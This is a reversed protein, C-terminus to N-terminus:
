PYLVLAAHRLLWNREESTVDPIVYVHEQGAGRRAEATRSSGFPVAAGALVLALRVGRRRLEGVVQIAIDRNKHAYNTGLVLAFDGAVFGRALLESPPSTAEEGSLHDTGNEVVFIREPDVPMRELGLHDRVDHSIAIVGDCAGAVQRMADRHYIWEESTAHYIGVHFSTLDQITVVTRAATKFWSPHLSGTPQFPRHGVDVWGFGTVDGGAVYRAEVKPHSLIEAAYAPVSTALAVYVREVDPRRSLAAVLCSTQVQTGMEKPGLCSGDILVRLGLVKARAAAHVIALPSDGANSEQRAIDASFPHRDLLWRDEAPTFGADELTGLDYPRAVFTAPDVVDLFGKQRARLSVDALALGGRLGGVEALPGVASLAYSSLLVVPGASFPIPAPAQEPETERLLRTISEEDLSEVQHSVAQNRYPFSVFSAANCLFSVTAVSMDGSVAALAPALFASPVVVPETVVLVHCRGEEWLENVATSLSVAVVSRAGVEVLPAVAAPDPSAAVVEMGPHARRLTTVTPVYADTWGEAFLVAVVPREAGGTM